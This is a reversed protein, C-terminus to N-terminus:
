AKARKEELWNNLDKKQGWSYAVSAEAELPIPFGPLPTIEMVRKQWLAFKEVLEVDDDLESIIEDHIQAVMDTRGHQMFPAEKLKEILKPSFGEWPDFLAGQNFYASDLGIKEYIASQAKKM